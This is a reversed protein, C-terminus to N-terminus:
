VVSPPRGGPPPGSVPPTTVCPPGPGAKGTIAPPDTASKWCSHAEGVEALEDVMELLVSPQPPHRRRDRAIELDGLDGVADRFASGVAVHGEQELADLAEVHGHEHVREARLVADGRCEAHAVEVLEALSDRLEQIQLQGASEGLTEALEVREDIEHLGPRPAHGRRGALLHDLGRPGRDGPERRELAPGAVAAAVDGQRTDERAIRARALAVDPHVPELDEVVAREAHVPLRVLAAGLM